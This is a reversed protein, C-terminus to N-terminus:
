DEKVTSELLPVKKGGLRMVVGGQKVKEGLAQRGLEALQHQIYADVEAKGFNTREDVKEEAREVYYPLDSAIGQRAQQVIHQLEKLQAKTPAKGTAFEALKDEVHKFSGAIKKATDRLQNKTHEAHSEPIPPEEIQLLKGDQRYRITCPVGVGQNPTAIMRAYQVESMEVEAILQKPHFWESGGDVKLEGTHIQLALSHGTDHDVGFMRRSGSRQMVSILGYSPHTQWKPEDEPNDGVYTTM